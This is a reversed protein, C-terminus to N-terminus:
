SGTCTHATASPVTFVQEACCMSVEAGGRTTHLIHQEREGKCALVRLQERLAM